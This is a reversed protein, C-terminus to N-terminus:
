SGPSAAPVPLGVRERVAEFRPSTRLPDIMPDALIDLFGFGGSVIRELEDLARTTDGLLTFWRVRADPARFWTGLPAAALTARASERGTGLTVARMLDRELQPDGERLTASFRDLAELAESTRGEGLLAWSLFYHSLPFGPALEIASKLIAIAETNRGLYTLARGESAQAVASLPDLERARQFLELSRSLDGAMGLYQAYQTLTEVNNPALVLAVAYERGAGILDWRDRLVNALATRATVLTSDIV